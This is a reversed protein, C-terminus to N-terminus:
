KFIKLSIKILMLSNHFMKRLNLKKLTVKLFIQVDDNTYIFNSITSKINNDSNSPYVVTTYIVVIIRM